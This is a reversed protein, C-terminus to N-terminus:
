HRACLLLRPLTQDSTKLNSGELTPLTSRQFPAASLLIANSQGCEGSPVGRGDTGGGDFAASASSSALETRSIEVALSWRAHKLQIRVCVRAM